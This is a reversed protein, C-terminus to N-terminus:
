SIEVGWGTVSIVNGVGAQAKITGGAEVVMVGDWVGREQENLLTKPLIVDSDASGDQWIKITTPTGPAETVNVVTLSKFIGSTVAPATYLTTVNGDSIIAGFLKKPTDVVPM